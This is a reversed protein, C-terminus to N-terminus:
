REARARLERAAAVMKILAPKVDEWKRTKFGRDPNTWLQGDSLRQRALSLLDVM